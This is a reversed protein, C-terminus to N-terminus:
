FKLQKGKQIVYRINMEKDILVVNGYHGSELSGYDNDIGISKAPNESAARVAQELPIEMDIVAKRMCEFLCTVSGAITEPHDALVARGSQVEVQQGGLKYFGDSLGCARMSDSILIVREAGFIRFTLRVVSPNIHVSDTILEVEASHEWAAAIPGPTRHSIGLMANYLHTM